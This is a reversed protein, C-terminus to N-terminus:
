IPRNSYSETVSLEREGNPRSPWSTGVFAPPPEAVTRPYSWSVAGIADFAFVFERDGACIADRVQHLVDHQPNIVAIFAVTVCSSMLCVCFPAWADLGKWSLEPVKWPELNQIIRRVGSPAMSEYLLEDVSIVFELAVANLLLDGIDVTYVLFFTGFVVMLLSIVGRVVCVLVAILRRRLTLSTISWIGDESLILESNVKCPVFYCTRLLNLVSRCEKGQTLYWLSLALSLMVTGKEGIGIGEGLYGVLQVYSNEQESSVAIGWDNSCM